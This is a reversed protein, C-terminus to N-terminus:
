LPPDQSRNLLDQPFDGRENCVDVEHLLQGTMCYKDVCAYLVGSLDRSRKQCEFAIGDSKRIWM